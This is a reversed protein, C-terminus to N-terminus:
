LRAVITFISVMSSSTLQDSYLSVCNYRGAVFFNINLYDFMYNFRMDKFGPLILSICSTTSVTMGPSVQSTGTTALTGRSVYVTRRSTNRSRAAVSVQDELDAVAMTLEINQNLAAKM